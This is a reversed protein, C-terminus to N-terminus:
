PSTACLDAATRGALVASRAMPLSRFRDIMGGKLDYALAVAATTSGFVVTQVFMGPLLYDRLESGARRDRRRLRLPLAARVHGAPDDLLRATAAHPRDDHHQPARDRDRGHLGGLRAAAGAAAPRSRAREHTGEARADDSAPRHM